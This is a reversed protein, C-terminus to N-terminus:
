VPAAVDGPSDSLVSSITANERIPGFHHELGAARLASRVPGRAEALKLTVGRARLETRLAELMEAGALDVNATTALCWIALRAPPQQDDLTQM